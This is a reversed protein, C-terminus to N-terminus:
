VLLFDCNREIFKLCGTDFCKEYCTSKLLINLYVNPLYEGGYWAPVQSCQVLDHNQRVRPSWVPSPAQTRGALHIALGRAQGHGCHPDGRWPCGGQPDGGGGSAGQFDMPDVGWFNVGTSLFINWITEFKINVLIKILKRLLFSELLITLGITYQIHNGKDRISLIPM